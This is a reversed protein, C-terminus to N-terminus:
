GISPSVRSTGPISSSSSKLLRPVSPPEVPDKGAAGAAELRFLPECDEGPDAESRHRRHHDVHLSGAQLLCHLFRADFLGAGKRHRGAKRDSLALGRGFRAAGAKYSCNSLGSIRRTACGSKRRSTGREADMASQALDLESAIDRLMLRGSDISQSHNKPLDSHSHRRLSIRQRMRMRALGRNRATAFRGLGPNAPFHALVASPWISSSIHSGKSPMARKRRDRRSVSGM